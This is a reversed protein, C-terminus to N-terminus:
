TCLYVANVERTKLIYLENLNARMEGEMDEIMRGINALHPSADNVACAQTPYVDILCSDRFDVADVQESQRTLSGCLNTDGVEAKSVSMNLMVTTTLKYTAQAFSNIESVIWRSIM